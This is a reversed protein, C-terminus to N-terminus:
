GLDSLGEPVADFAGGSAAPRQAPDTAEQLVWDIMMEREWSPLVHEAEIAGVGYHLRLIRLEEEEQPTLYPPQV